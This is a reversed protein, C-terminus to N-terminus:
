ARESRLVHHIDAGDEMVQPFVVDTAGDESADEREVHRGLQLAASLGRTTVEM